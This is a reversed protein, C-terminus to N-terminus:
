VKNKFHFFSLIGVPLFYVCWFELVATGIWKEGSMGPTFIGAMPIIFCSLFFVGHIILLRKLWKDATTRVTVTLGAFFTALAMLGYGLLNYNFFLGFRSYDLIQAAPENLGGRSVTTVQAFYVALIFAAYIASFVLSVYGAAKKDGDSYHCFAAAMPIFGFAIFMSSLYSGSDTGILMCLAFAFVALANVLSGIMGIKRNM